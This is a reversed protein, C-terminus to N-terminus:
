FRKEFVLGDEGGQYYQKWRKVPKYDAKQYLRIASENSGRVTLRIVPMDLATECASLLAMGIGRCRFEPLTAITIIWGIRQSTDREGGVFGVLCGDIVAKLRVYEPLVLIGFIDWFPWSDQSSFATKELASLASYDRWNAREILFKETKHPDM